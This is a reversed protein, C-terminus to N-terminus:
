GCGFSQADWWRPAQNNFVCWGADFCRAGCFHPNYSYGSRMCRIRELSGVGDGGVNRVDLDQSDTIFGVLPAAPGQSERDALDDSRPGNM